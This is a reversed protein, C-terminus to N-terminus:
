VRDMLEMLAARPTQTFESALQTSDAGFYGNAFLAVKSSTGLRMIANNTRPPVQERENRPFTQSQRLVRFLNCTRPTILQHAAQLEVGTAM